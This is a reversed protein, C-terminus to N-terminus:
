SKAARKGSRAASRIAAVICVLYLIIGLGITWVPPHAQEGSEFDVIALGAAATGMVLFAEVPTAVAALVGVKLFKGIPRRLSPSRALRHALVYLLVGVSIGSTMVVLFVGLDNSLPGQYTGRNLLDNYRVGADISVALGTPVSAVGSFVSARSGGFRKRRQAVEVGTFTM